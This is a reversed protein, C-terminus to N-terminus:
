LGQSEDSERLRQVGKEKIWVRSDTKGVQRGGILGLERLRRYHNEGAYGIQDRLERITVSSNGEDLCGKGLLFRLADIKVADLERAGRMSSIMEAVFNLHLTWIDRLDRFAAEVDNFTVTKRGDVGAQICSMRTLHKLLDYMATLSFKRCLGGRQIGTDRLEETKQYLLDVM